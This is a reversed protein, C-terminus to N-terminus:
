YNYMDSISVYNVFCRLRMIDEFGVIRYLRSISLGRLLSNKIYTNRLYILNGKKAPFLNELVLCLRKDANTSIYKEFIFKAPGDENTKEHYYKLIKLARQDCPISLNMQGDEILLAAHEFEVDSARLHMIQKINLGTLMLLKIFDMEINNEQFSYIKEEEEEKLVKPNFQDPIQFYRIHLTPNDNIYGLGRGFEFIEKLLMLEGNFRKIEKKNKTKKILGRYNEIVVPTIDSLMKVCRCHRHLYRAFRDTVFKFRRFTRACHSIKANELYTNFFIGYEIDRVLAEMEGAKIKEQTERLLKEAALKDGGAKKQYLLGRAYFEIYYENDIKKISGM